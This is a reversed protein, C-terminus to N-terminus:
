TALDPRASRESARLVERYLSELHALAANRARAPSGEEVSKLIRAHDRCSRKGSGNIAFNKSRYEIFQPVLAQYMERLVENHSAQILSYHFDQDSEILKGVDSRAQAQEHQRSASAMAQLDSRTAREAALAAGTGELSIRVEFLDALQFRHESTWQVFAFHPDTQTNLAIFTGLGRRVEVAGIMRLKSIGERLSTRGVGLYRALEPETPLRDGPGYEGAKIADLIRDAVDESVSRRPLQPTRLVTEAEKCPGFRGARPEGSIPNGADATSV